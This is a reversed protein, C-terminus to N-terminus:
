LLTNKLILLSTNINEQEDIYGNDQLHKLYALAAEGPNTNM